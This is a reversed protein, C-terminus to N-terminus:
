PYIRQTDYVLFHQNKKKSFIANKRKKYGGNQSEGKQRIASSIALICSYASFTCKKTKLLDKFFVKM